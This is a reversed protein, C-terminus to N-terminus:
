QWGTCPRGTAGVASASVSVALTLQRFRSEAEQQVARAEAPANDNLARGESWGGSEEVAMRLRHAGWGGGRGGDVM